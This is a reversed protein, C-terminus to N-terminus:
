LIVGFAVNNILFLFPGKVIYLDPLAVVCQFYLSGMVLTPVFQWTDGQHPRLPFAVADGIPFEKDRINLRLILIVFGASLDLSSDVFCSLIKLSDINHFVFFFSLPFKAM